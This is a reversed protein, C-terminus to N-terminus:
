GHNRSRKNIEAEIILLRHVATQLRKRAKTIEGRKCRRLHIRADRHETEARRLKTMLAEDEAWSFLPRVPVNQTSDSTM